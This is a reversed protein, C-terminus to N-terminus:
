QNWIYQEVVETLKYESDNYINKVSIITKNAPHPSLNHNVKKELYQSNLDYITQSDSSKINSLDVIEKIKKDIPILGAILIASEYSITRYAKTIRISILRQIKRLAKIKTKNLKEAWIEAGYLIISEIVSTYILKLSDSGLGWTNKAIISLKHIKRLCKDTIYEVHKIFNLKRDIILGLYKLENVVDINISNMFIKPKTYNRRNTFLIAKTKNPNFEIKHNIGWNQLKELVQNAIEEIKNIDNGTIIAGTDDCYAQLESNEPLEIQLLDDFMINWLGPGLASGQSLGKTLSKKIYEEGFVVIAERDTLYSKITLYINKPTKNKRLQLLISPWFVNDFAGKMDLSIFLLFKKDNLQTKVKQTLNKIATQTSKQPRFGFQKDSLLNNSNFHWNIRDILLKEFIKALVCLLSILRYSSIEHQSKDKSKIVM